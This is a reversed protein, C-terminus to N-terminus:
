ALKGEPKVAFVNEPSGMQEINSVLNRSNIMVGKPLGTTGSSYPLFVTNTPNELEVDPFDLNEDILERFNIAGHPLSEDQQFSSM